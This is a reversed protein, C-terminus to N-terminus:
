NHKNNKEKPEINAMWPKEIKIYLLFYIDNTSKIKYIENPINNKTGATAELTFPYKNFTLMIKPIINDNWINFLNQTILFKVGFLNKLLEEKKIKAEWLVSKITIYLTKNFINM